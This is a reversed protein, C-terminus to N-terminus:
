ARKKISGKTHKPVYPCNICKHGCCYGRQILFEKTLPKM